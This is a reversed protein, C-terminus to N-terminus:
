TDCFPHRRFLSYMKRISTPEDGIGEVSWHQHLRCGVTRECYLEACYLATCYLSIQSRDAFGAIYRMRLDRKNMHMQLKDHILRLWPKFFFVVHGNPLGNVDELDPHLHGLAAKPGGTGKCRVVLNLGFPILLFPMPKTAYVGPCHNALFIDFCSNLKASVESM